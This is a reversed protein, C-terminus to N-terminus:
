SVGHRSALAAAAARSPLRLKRLISTVHRHVTHESLRLRAAIEANTLGRSLLALVDLERPTLAAFPGNGTIPPGHRLRRVLAVVREAGWGAGLEEFTRRATEVERAAAERRGSEALCEALDLRISAAVFPSDAALDVADEWLRRALEYDGGAAALTAEGAFASARLSGSGAREAMACLEDAPRRAEQVRGLRALGKILVELGGARDVRRPDSTRRLFREALDVAEEALGLDLAVQASGLLGGAWGGCQDYLGRAEDLRGQMRRIDGLRVLAHPTLNPRASRLADRAISVQAEAESLRGQWALVGAYKARCVGLLMGIGHRECFDAITNCWQGARDYDRVLECATILYCGAWAICVLLEAPEALGVTVAEDLLRMGAAYDGEYVFAVGQTALGLVELETVGYRRGLDLAEAALERARAPEEEIIFSAAHIAVWGHDPGQEVEALLRHARQLWGSSVAPENRFELHDAALWAAVRAASAADGQEIYRRYARERASFTLEADDLCYGCWGLGELGNATEEQALAAEFLARAGAWDGERLAQWGAELPWLASPSAV